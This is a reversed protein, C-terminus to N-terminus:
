VNKNITHGAIDGTVNVNGSLAVGIQRASVRTAAGAPRQQEGRFTLSADYVEELLRRLRDVAQLAVQSERDLVAMGVVYDDVDRRARLLSDALRDLVAPVPALQATGAPEFVGEPLQMSPLPEPEPTPVTAASQEPAPAARNRTDRRRRLLEGAQAYMFAVGQTLTATEVAALTSVDM